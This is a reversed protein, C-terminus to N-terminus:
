EYPRELRGDRGRAQIGEQLVDQFLALDLCLLVRGALAAEQLGALLLPIEQRRNLRREDPFLGAAVGQAVLIPLVPWWRRQLRLREALRGAVEALQVPHGALDRAIQLAHHGAREVGGLLWLAGFPQLREGVALFQRGDLGQLPQPVHGKRLHHFGALHHTEVGLDHGGVAGLLVCLDRADPGEIEDRAPLVQAVERIGVLDHHGGALGRVTIDLQGLRQLLAGLPHVHHGISGVRPASRARRMCRGPKTSRMWCAPAM